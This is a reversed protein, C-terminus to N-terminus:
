NKLEVLVVKLTTNGINEAWHTVPERYFVEGAKFEAEAVSGDAAHNRVKGGELVYVVYAPHSHINEKEGPKLTVDFVRVRPNDLKVAITKANVTVPDQGSSVTTDGRVFGIVILLFMLISIRKM